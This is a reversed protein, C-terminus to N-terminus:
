QQEKLYLRKLKQKNIPENKGYFYSFPQTNNDIGEDKLMSISRKGSPDIPFSDENNRIKIYTIDLVEIPLYKIMRDAISKYIKKKNTKTLPQLEIHCVLDHNNIDVVTCSMVNKTDKLVVDEIKYLPFKEGNSLFINDTMRGKMKVRKKDTKYSYTGTNLYKNGYKDTVFADKNLKKDAYGLMICPSKEVLLGPEFLDCYDGKEDLVEFWAFPISTLGLGEKKTKNQPLQEFLAKYLTFLVGMGETTGGGISFRIPSIPYPLKDTGFRHKRATINYFKEEGPSTGEGTVIPIMLFPLNIKKFKPDFNLIKCLYGWFGNSATVFNSKNILLSYPFFNRNYFPECDYTCGCYLTNSIGCSLAINTDTPIHGLLKMNKMETTASVDKEYSRALTLYCRTSNMVCKPRGPSTTGSTYTKTFVDDIDIEELIKDNYYDGYSLFNSSTIFKQNCIKRYDEVKNEIKHFENDIAEYPNYSNGNKDKLFSETISFMVVNTIKSNDISEKVNEYSLDDIFITDSGTKNFIDKLYEKNFWDAVVNVRLGVSSAAWLLYLFEPMNTMLIPIENGKEFGMAKLSKAFEMGHEFFEEYTINNGRYQIAIKDLNDKNRLYIEAAWSHNKNKEIDDLADKINQKLNEDYEYHKKSRKKNNELIEIEENLLEINKM